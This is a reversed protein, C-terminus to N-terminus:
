KAISAWPVKALLEVIKIIYELVPWLIFSCILGLQFNLMAGVGTIFILLMSLPILPLVLINSLPAILSLRGFQYWILPFVALQAGLTEVLPMKIGDPLKKLNRKEFIKKIQPSIYILGAFALFSLQFGSDYRLIYPNAIVM